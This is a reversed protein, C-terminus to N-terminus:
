FIKEEDGIHGNELVHANVATIERGFNNGFGVEGFRVEVGLTVDVDFDALTHVTELFGGDKRIILEGRVKGRVTVERDRVSGAEPAVGITAGRESERNIVEADFEKRFGVGIM